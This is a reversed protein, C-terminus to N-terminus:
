LGKSSEKEKIQEAWKILEKSNYLIMLGTKYNDGELV